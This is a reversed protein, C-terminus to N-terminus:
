VCQGSTHPMSLYEKHPVLWGTLKLLGVSVLVAVTANVLMLAKIKKKKLKGMSRDETYM